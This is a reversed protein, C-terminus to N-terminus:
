TVAAAPAAVTGTGTGSRTFLAPRAPWIYIGQPASFAGNNNVVVDAYTLGALEVPIQFTIQCSGDDGALVAVLPAEIGGVLVKM